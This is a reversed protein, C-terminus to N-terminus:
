AQEQHKRLVNKYQATVSTLALTIQALFCPAKQRPVPMAQFSRAASPSFVTINLNYLVLWFYGLGSRQPDGDKYLSLM